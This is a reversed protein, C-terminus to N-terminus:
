EDELGLDEKGVVMYYGRRQHEISKAQLGTDEVLKLLEDSPYIYRRVGTPPQQKPDYPDELLVKTGDGEIFVPEIHQLSQGADWHTDLLLYGDRVPWWQRQPKQGTRMPADVALVGGPALSARMRGLLNKEDELSLLGLTDFCYTFGNGGPLEGQSVLNATLYTIELGRKAAEERAFHILTGCKDIATVQYGRRALALEIGGEGCACSLVPKSKDFRLLKELWQARAEAVKRYTSWQGEFFDIRLANAWFSDWTERRENM